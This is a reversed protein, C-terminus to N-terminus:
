ARDRRPQGDLRRRSSPAAHHRDHGSQRHTPILLLKADSPACPGSKKDGYGAEFLFQPVQTTKGSGTEGCIVVVTNQRIADMVTEEEALIPLKLRAEQIAEARDVVVARISTLSPRPGSLLSTPQVVEIDEGLPGRHVGDAPGGAYPRDVPM